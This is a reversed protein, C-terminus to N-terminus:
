RHMIDRVRVREKQREREIQRERERERETERERVCVCVCVCSPEREEGGGAHLAGHDRGECLGLLVDEHLGLGPRSLSQGVQQRHQGVEEGQLRGHIPRLAGIRDNQSGGPRCKIVQHTTIHHTTIHHSTIHHTTQCQLRSYDVLESV